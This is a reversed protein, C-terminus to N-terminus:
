SAGCSEAKCVPLISSRSDLIEFHPLPDPRTHDTATMLKFDSHWHRPVRRKLHKQRDTQWWEEISKVEAEFAASEAKVDTWKQAMISNAM